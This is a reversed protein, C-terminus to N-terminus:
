YMNVRSSEDKKLQIEAIDHLQLFAKNRISGNLFGIPSSITLHSDDIKLSLTDVNTAHMEFFSHNSLDVQINAIKSGSMSLRGSNQSVHLNEQELGELTVAVSNNATIGKFATKPVFISIRMRTDESPAGSFTLTDGSVEYQLAKLVDGGLSLVELRPRDSASVRIDRGINNVILYSVGSLDVTESITNKEDMVRSTGGFRLEAFAATLYLFIFGFFGLLIKNSLKM